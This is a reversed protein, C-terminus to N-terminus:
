KAVWPKWKGNRGSPPTDLIARFQKETLVQPVYDNSRASLQGTFARLHNGSARLLNGYVMQITENSTQDILDQLDQIDIEEIFAGVELAAILSKSGKKTLTKYLDTLEKNQFKGAQNIIPDKLGFNDILSGVADIHRAESNSINNFVPLEWKKYLVQYVDHALKEEERMLQIGKKETDTLDTTFGKKPFSTTVVIFLVITLFTKM